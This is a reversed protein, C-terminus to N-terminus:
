GLIFRRFRCSAYPPSESRHRPKHRRNHRLRNTIGRVSRILGYREMNSLFAEGGVGCQNPVCNTGDTAIRIGCYKHAVEIPTCSTGPEFGPPGVM